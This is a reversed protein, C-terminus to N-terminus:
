AIFASLMAYSVQKNVILLSEHVVTYRSSKIIFKSITETCFAIRKCYFIIISLNEIAEM